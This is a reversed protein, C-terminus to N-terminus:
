TRAIYEFFPMESKIKTVFVKSVKVKAGSVGKFHRANKIAQLVNFCICWHKPRNPFFTEILLGKEMCNDTVKM